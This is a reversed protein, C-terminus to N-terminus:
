KYLIIPTQGYPSSAFNGMPSAESINARMFLTHWFEPGFGIQNAM